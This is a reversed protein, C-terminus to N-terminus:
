SSTREMLPSSTPTTCSPCSSAMGCSALQRLAAETPLNCVVQVALDPTVTWTSAICAGFDLSVAELVIDPSEGYFTIINPHRLSSLVQVERLFSEAEDPKSIRVMKVAVQGGRWTGLYTTGFTGEGLKEGM